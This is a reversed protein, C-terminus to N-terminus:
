LAVDFTAHVAFMLWTHTAGDIGRSSSSTEEGEVDISRKVNTYRALALTLNAGLYVSRRLRYDFGTLLCGLVPGYYFDSTNTTTSTSFIGSDTETTQGNSGVVEIGAGLGFWPDFAALPRLYYRARVLGFGGAAIGCSETPEPCRAPTGLGIMAVSAIGVDFDPIPGWAAEAGLLLPTPMINQVSAGDAASGFPLGLGALGSFRLRAFAPEDRSPAAVRSSVPATTPGAAAANATTVGLIAIGALAGRRWSCVLGSGTRQSQVLVVKGWRGRSANL